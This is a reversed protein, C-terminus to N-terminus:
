KQSRIMLPQCMLWADYTQAFKGDHVVAMQTRKTRHRGIPETVTGSLSPQGIVIAQYTRKIERKALQEVLIQYAQPTRAVMLLGTTDKDLRHILGARPLQFLQADYHLLGNLITQDPNGSGPHVVDGSAKNIVLIDEDEYIIDLPKNQAEWNECSSHELTIEITDGSQIVTRPKRVTQGNITLHGLKIHTQIQSRSFDPIQNALFADIRMTPQTVPIEFTYIEMILSDLM